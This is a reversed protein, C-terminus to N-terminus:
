PSGAGVVAEGSGGGGGEASQLQTPLPLTLLHSFLLPLLLGPLLLMGGISLARRAFLALHARM